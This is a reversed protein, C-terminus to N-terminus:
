SSASAAVRRLRNMAQCSSSFVSSGFRSSSISSPSSESGTGGSWSPRAVMRVEPVVPVGLPAPRLLGADGSGAAAKRDLIGRCALSFAWMAAGSKWEQPKAWKVM